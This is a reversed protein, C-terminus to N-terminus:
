CGLVQRFLTPFEIFSTSFNQQFIPIDLALTELQLLNQRKININSPRLFRFDELTNGHIHQFM